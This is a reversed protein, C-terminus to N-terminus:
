GKSAHNMTTECEIVHATLAEIMESNTLNRTYEMVARRLNAVATDIRRKRDRAAHLEKAQTTSIVTDM